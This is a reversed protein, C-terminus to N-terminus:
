GSPLPLWNSVLAAELSAKGQDQSHSLQNIVSMKCVLHDQVCREPAATSLAM